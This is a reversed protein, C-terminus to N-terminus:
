GDKHQLLQQFQEVSGVAGVEGAAMAPVPLRAPDRPAPGRMRGGRGRGRARATQTLPPRWTPALPFNILM